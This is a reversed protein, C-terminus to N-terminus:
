VPSKVLEEFRDRVNRFVEMLRPSFVGCEGNVIMRFAEDTSYADKYCRENVLADYVDAVSVLQAPM